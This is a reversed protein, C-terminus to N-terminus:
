FTASIWQFDESVDQITVSFRWLGATVGPLAGTVGRIGASVKMEFGSFCGLFGHIAGSLIMFERFRGHLAELGGQFHKSFKNKFGVRVRQLTPVHHSKFSGM